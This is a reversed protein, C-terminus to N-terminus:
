RRGVPYVLALNPRRAAHFSAPRALRGFYREAQIEDVAVVDVIDWAMRYSRDM